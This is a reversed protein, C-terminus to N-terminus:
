KRRKPFLILKQFNLLNNNQKLQLIQLNLNSPISFYEM